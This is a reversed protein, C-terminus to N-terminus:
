GATRCLTQYRVSASDINRDDPPEVGGNINFLLMDPGNPQPMTFCGATYGDGPPVWVNLPIRINLATAATSCAEPSDIQIMNEACKTGAPMHHYPMVPSSSSSDSGTPDPPTQCTNGTYGNECICRGAECSGNNGCNIEPNLCPDPPTQCTNGTYGGVCTCSNVACTGDNHCEADETCDHICQRDTCYTTDGGECLIPGNTQPNTVSCATLNDCVRNSTYTPPTTQYEEATCQTLQACERDVTSTPATAEYQGTSCVSTLQVCEGAGTM